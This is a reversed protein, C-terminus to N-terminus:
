PKEGRLLDMLQEAEIEDDLPVRAAEDFAADRKGSWAWLVIGVFVVLMVVTMVSSFLSYDM